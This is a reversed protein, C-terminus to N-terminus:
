RGPIKHYDLKRPDARSSLYNNYNTSAGTQLGYAGGIGGGLISWGAGMGGKRNQSVFGFGGGTSNSVGFTMPSMEVINPNISNGTSLGSTNIYKDGADLYSGKGFDGINLSVGEPNSDGAGNGGTNMKGYEGGGGPQVNLFNNNPSGHNNYTAGLVNNKSLGVGM